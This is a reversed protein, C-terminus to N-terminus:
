KLHKFSVSYVGESVGYDIHNNELDFVENNGILGIMHNDVTIRITDCYGVIRHNSSGSYYSFDKTKNRYSVQFVSYENNRICFEVYDAGDLCCVETFTFPKFHYTSLLMCLNEVVDQFVGYEDKLNLENVAKGYYDYKNRATELSVDYIGQNIPCHYSVVNKGCFEHPFGNVTMGNECDNKCNNCTDIFVM